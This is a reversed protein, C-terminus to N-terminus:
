VVSPYRARGGPAAPDRRVTCIVHQLKALAAPLICRIASCAPRLKKLRRRDPWWLPWEGLQGAYHQHHWRRREWISKRPKVLKPKARLSRRKDAVMWEYFPRSGFDGWLIRHPALCSNAPYWAWVM